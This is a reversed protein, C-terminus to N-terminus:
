TEILVPKILGNMRVLTIGMKALIGVKKIGVPRKKPEM